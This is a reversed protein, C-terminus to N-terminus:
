PEDKINLLEKIGAWAEERAKHFKTEHDKKGATDKEPTDWYARLEKAQVRLLKTLDRVQELKKKDEPDTSSELVRGLQTDVKDMLVTITKLLNKADSENYVDGDTADALMGLNLYTQYLHAASLGGIAELSRDAAPEAPERAPPAPDRPRPPAPRGAAAVDPPVEGPPTVARAPAEEKPFLDPAPKDDTRQVAAKRENTTAKVVAVPPTELRRLALTVFYVGVGVALVVIGVTTVALTIMWRRLQAERLLLSAHSDLAGNAASPPKLAASEGSSSGAPVASGGSEPAKYPTGRPYQPSRSM